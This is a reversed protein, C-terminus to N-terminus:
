VRAKGSCAAVAAIKRAPQSLRWALAAGVAVCKGHSEIRGAHAGGKCQELADSLAVREGSQEAVLQLASQM